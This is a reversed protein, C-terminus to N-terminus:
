MFDYDAEEERKFGEAEDGYDGYADGGGMMDNIMAPNNNRDNKTAAGKISPKASKKNKGDRAEKEKKALNKQMITLHDVIKGIQKSDCHEPLEKCLEKFFNEVRYPASGQYLLKGTKRGFEKYEKESNLSITTKEDM